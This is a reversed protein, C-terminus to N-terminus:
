ESQGVDLGYAKCFDEWGKKYGKGVAEFHWDNDKRIFSGLQVATCNGDDETLKFNCIPTDTDADSITVRCHNVHGFDQGRDAAEYIEAITSFEDVGPNRQSLLDQDLFMIDTGGKWDDPNHTVAGTPDIKNNYFIFNEDRMCKPQGNIHNLLFGGVNCEFRQNPQIMAPNVDWDIEIKFRKVHGFNKSLNVGENKKLNIM